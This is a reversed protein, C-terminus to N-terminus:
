ARRTRLAELEDRLDPPSPADMPEAALIRRAAAAREDADGPLALDIAERVIVAVAVGRRDAAASLRAHREDDLLIQLRHTLMLM